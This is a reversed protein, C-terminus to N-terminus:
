SQLRSSGLMHLYMANTRQAGSMPTKSCVVVTEGPAARGSDLLYTDIAQFVDEIASLQGVIEAQVGWAFNLRRQHREDPVFALIPEKPRYESVLRATAGSTSYVAICEARLEHAARVAALSIANQFNQAAQTSLFHSTQMYNARESREVEVIIRDMTQVTNVPDHSVATEGSMMLADAGDLVANAVDSAEARTPRTNHIMSELMQTAVIVFRGRRNSEEIIKKQIMPVKETPMEVGLDGRAVMLGDSEEIIGELQEIAQPKELKAVVLPKSKSATLERRLMRIDQRSRVFSLAVADVGLEAGVKVDRIDKETLSPASVPSMPLNIGKKDKLLGGHLVRCHVDQAEVAEVELTLNGDDLLICSGARVDHPLLEYSTGFREATGLVTDTTIICNAGKVLEVQGNEMTQCRIKPGQLDQLIAVPKGAKESARRIREVLAGHFDHDGHSFNLRAVNMGAEILAEIAEESDCAPGMTCIIKARRM